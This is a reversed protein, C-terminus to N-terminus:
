PVDPVNWRERERGLRVILRVPGTYRRRKRVESTADLSVCCLELYYIPTLVFTM